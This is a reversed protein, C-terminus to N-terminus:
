RLNEIRRLSREAQWHSHNHFTKPRCSQCEKLRLFDDNDLGEKLFPKEVDATVSVETLPSVRGGDQLKPMPRGSGVGSNATLSPIVVDGEGSFRGCDALEGNGDMM